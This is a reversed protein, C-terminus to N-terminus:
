WLFHLHLPWSPWWLHELIPLGLKDGLFYQKMGVAELLLYPCLTVLRLGLIMAVCCFNM